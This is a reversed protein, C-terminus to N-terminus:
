PRIPEVRDARWEAAPFPQAWYATERSILGDRMRLIFVVQYPNGDGYDLDAELVMLDGEVVVRPNAVTPLAPFRDYIERRNANGVIRENSQPWELVVDETFLENLAGLDGANMAAVFARATRENDTLELDEV